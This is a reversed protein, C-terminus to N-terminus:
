RAGIPIVVANSHKGNATVVLEMPSAAAEPIQFRIVVVGVEGQAAGAFVPDLSLGGSLITVPDALPLILTQPVAFGDPANGRYPGFGTGFLTITEGPLAPEEPTVLTGNPHTALAYQLGGVPQTFLGPANRVVQFSAKVDDHGDWHVTLSYDGATLGSPLQANIQEPSVFFLPLIRDAVRVTVGALSQALPSHPGVTPAPGLSSGYIAIISGPALGSEPTEAAANRVGAPAVYPVRDLVARVSHPGNMRVTGSLLGGSLDGEWYRFRFGARPQVTVAVSTGAAFFGDPSAPQFLFDAGGAPDSTAALLYFYPYTAVLTQRDANLKVTRTLSSVGDSWGQFQLRSGDGIAYSAPASVAVEAGASRYVTCAGQCASGDVTLTVESPDARVTLSNLPEYTATWGNTDPGVTVEQTAAGGGSWSRFLYHRGASDTQEAPASITHRSGLGWTFNVQTATRGDVILKLGQPSSIVGVPIGPVYLATLTVPVSAAGTIYDHYDAGGDSWSDFAWLGGTQDRQAPVVGVAHRSGGAWDFAVPTVFAQHDAYVQLGPPVTVLTIRAAPAFHPQLTKPGDLVFSLAPASAGSFTGLWGVFAFGPPTYVQVQVTMGRTGWLVQSATYCSGAGPISLYVKGWGPGADCSMSASAQDLTLTVAYYVAWVAKYYPIAASATIVITQGDLMRQGDSNQWEQFEYRVGPDPPTYEPLGLVHTSNEPWLFTVPGRYPQGDVTFTGGPPDSYIRTSVIREEAWLTGAALLVAIWRCMDKNCIPM